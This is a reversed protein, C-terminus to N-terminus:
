CSAGRVRKSTACLAQTAKERLCSCQSPLISRTCRVELAGPDCYFEETHGNLM